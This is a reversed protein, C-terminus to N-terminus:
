MYREYFSQIIGVDTAEYERLEVTGDKRLFTNPQVFKWKPEKNAVVIKRWIEYQGDVISLDEYFPRCANLDATSHWIHISYLMKGISPKGHSMIKSRDVRVFLTNKIPDHDVTMVGDGDQLLHKANAFLAQHHDGGWTQTNDDATPTSTEHYGFLALVDQNDALYYAFLFPRYEEVTLALKGFVSNWTEKPKYWTEIPQSTIPSIPLREHHFNFEGPTPKCSRMGHIGGGGVPVHYCPHGPHNNLSMRNGYILNKVGYNQGVENNKQYQFLCIGPRSYNFDPTEIDSREFPGKGNNEPTSWPVSTLIESSMKVLQNIERTDEIDAIGVCAQWDAIKLASWFDTLYDGTQLSRILQGLEAVQEASATYKRAEQLEPREGSQINGIFRPSEDVKVCTQIVRFEDWDGSEADHHSVKRLRTNEAGIDPTEILRTVTTIEEKTIIEEGTYFSSQSTEHPYGLKSPQVAMMPNAMRRLADESVGPIVKRDGDAFYNGLNSMFMGAFELWSELEEQGIDTRCFKQWDGDCAKHMHLILDFIGEAEPSTQRLVIRGGHWRAKALHHAYAAGQHNRDENSKHGTLSNFIVRIELRHTTNRENWIQAAEM